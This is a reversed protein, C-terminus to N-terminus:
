RWTEERRPPIDLRRAPLTTIHWPRAADYATVALGHVVGAGLWRVPLPLRRPRQPELPALDIRVVGALDPPAVHVVGPLAQLHARAEDSLVGLGPLALQIVPHLLPQRGTGEITLELAASGSAHGVDGDIHVALPAGGAAGVPRLYRAELRFLVPLRSRVVVRADPAPLELAASGRTLALRRTVGDLEVEVDDPTAVGFAGYVSAALLWFGAEADDGMGLYLRPALGRALDEALADEGLQRAAVALAVSGIWADVAGEGDPLTRGGPDGAVLAARAREFLARGVADRRDSLLLGAALRAM